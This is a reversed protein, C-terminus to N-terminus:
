VHYLYSYRACNSWLPGKEVDRMLVWVIKTHPSNTLPVSTGSWLETDDTCKGHGDGNNFRTVKFNMSMIKDRIFEADHKPSTRPKPFSPPIKGKSHHFSPLTM